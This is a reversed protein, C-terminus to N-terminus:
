NMFKLSLSETRLHLPVPFPTSRIIGLPNIEIARTILSIPAHTARNRFPIKTASGLKKLLTFIFTIHIAMFIVERRVVSTLSFLLCIAFLWLFVTTFYNYHYPFVTNKMQEAKRQLECREKILKEMEIHHFNDVIKERTNRLPKKRANDPSSTM